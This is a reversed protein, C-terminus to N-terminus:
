SPGQLSFSSRYGVKQGSAQARITYRWLGSQLSGTDVQWGGKDTALQLTRDAASNNPKYLQLSVDELSVPDGSVDVVRLSASGQEVKLQWQWAAGARLSAVDDRYSSEHAYYDPRTLEFNKDGILIVAGLHFVAVGGLLCIVLTKGSFIQNM